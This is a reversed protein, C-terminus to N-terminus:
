RNRRLARGPRAGTHRGERVVTIGNVIVHSLGKPYRRPDAYTATDVIRAPDFIVLDAFFGQKIFGRDVLGFKRAPMGTMRHIGETLSLLRTDRVYHGLVRAFTAYLRPHPKAGAPIGDSGIMTSPDKLVTRVDGEDMTEVIVVAAPEEAVIREAAARAPLQWRRCLTQLKLGEWEPHKPVAAFLVKDPPVRGIGGFTSSEDFAGDLVVASLITSGATYPYQDATVDLGRARASAILALSERVRGWNESGSAKHHSIQVAVEAEEGVAITERVSDLLGAAENRMHSAYLATSGRMESVLAVLEDRAANRGPEYILGTSLGFAGAELGERVLARMAEVEAAAAARKPDRTAALRVTGHGILAAVNLSPPDRDIADLYGGYGEWKPAKALPHIAGLMALAPRYPAPGMGCNGVVDTTVGQMVKFDMEPTVLVALDDHSHVDIFGPALAKGQADIESAGVGEIVGIRAIRDGSIAVDGSVAAAQSGDFISANRIVLDWEAAM